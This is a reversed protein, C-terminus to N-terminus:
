YVGLSISAYPADGTFLYGIEPAIFFRYKGTKKGSIRLGLGLELIPLIRNKEKSQDHEMFSGDMSTSTMGDMSSSGDSDMSKSSAQTQPIGYVFGGALNSFFSLRKNMSFLANWELVPGWASRIPSNPSSLFNQPTQPVWIIRLGYLDGGSEAIGFGCGMAFADNTAEQPVVVSFRTQIYLPLEEEELSPNPLASPSKPGTSNHPISPTQSASSVLPNPRHPRNSLTHTMSPKQTLSVKQFTLHNQLLNSTKSLDKQFSDPRSYVMNKEQAWGFSFSFNILLTLTFVYRNSLSKCFILFSLHFPNIFFLPHLKDKFIRNKFDDEKLYKHQFLRSM